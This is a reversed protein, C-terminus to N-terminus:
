AAILGSEHLLALQIYKNPLMSFSIANGPTPDIRVWGYKKLYVEPWAHFPTNSYNTTIGAIFRSPVGNARCLAVFIDSFETCDGHGQAIGQAAGIDTRNFGSYEINLSVYNYVKKIIKLPDTHNLSEAKMHVTPDSLELHKEELLYIEPITDQILPHKKSTKLDRRYLDLLVDIQLPINQSIDDFIFVAYNIGDINIKRDPPHSYKIKQVTQVKNITGPVLCIFELKDTHGLTSITYNIQLDVTRAKQSFLLTSSCLLLILVILHRTTM